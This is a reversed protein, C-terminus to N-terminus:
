RPEVSEELEDDPGDDIDRVVQRQEQEALAKILGLDVEAPPDQGRRSAGMAGVGASAGLVHSSM